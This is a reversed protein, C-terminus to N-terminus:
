HEKLSRARRRATAVREWLHEGADSVLRLGQDKLHRARGRAKEHRATLHETGARVLGTTGRRILDRKERLREDVANSVDGLACTVDELAQGFATGADRVDRQVAGVLEELRLGLGATATSESLLSTSSVALTGPVRVAVDTGAPRKGAAKASLFPYSFASSASATSLSFTPALSLSSVASSSSSAVANSSSAIAIAPVALHSWSTSPQVGPPLTSPLSQQAVAEKISTIASYSSSPLLTHNTSGAWIGMLTKQVQAVPASGQASQASQYG